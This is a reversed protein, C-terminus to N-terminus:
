RAPKLGHIPEARRGQGFDPVLGDVPAYPVTSIWIPRPPLEFANLTVPQPPTPRWSILLLTCFAISLAVIAAFDGLRNAHPQPNRWTPEAANRKLIVTNEIDESFHSSMTIGRQNLQYEGRNGWM